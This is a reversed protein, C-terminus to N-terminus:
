GVKFLNLNNAIFAAQLKRINDKFHVHDCYINEGLSRTFNYLDIVEISKGVMIEEAINNYLELDKIFRLFGEKRSNHVMDIIPTTTIWVVDKSMKKALDIIEELNRKYLEANIQLKLTNRDVRIDHMGCNLLLIDYRVQKDREEQLYKLVMSSDGANAGLPKDVDKLAEGIGRKRDYNFDEQISGKLYPGYHISISDGIVFISRKENDM